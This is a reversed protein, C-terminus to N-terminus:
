LLCEPTDVGTKNEVFPHDNHKWLDSSEAGSGPAAAAAVSRDYKGPLEAAGRINMGVWFLIVNSVFICKKVM